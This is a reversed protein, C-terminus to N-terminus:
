WGEVRQQHRHAAHTTHACGLASSCVDSSSPVMAATASGVRSVDAATASWAIGVNPRVSYRKPNATKIKFTASPGVAHVRLKQVSATNIAMPFRLEAPDIRVPAAADLAM